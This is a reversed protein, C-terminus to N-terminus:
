RMRSKVLTKTGTMHTKYEGKGTKIADQYADIKWRVRSGPRPGMAKANTRKVARFDFDWKRPGVKRHVYGKPVGRKYTM